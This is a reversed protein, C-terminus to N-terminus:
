QVTREIYNMNLVIRVKEDTCSSGSHKIQSPFTVLTNEKSFVKEGNEFITYGNNTNIYFVATTIKPDYVDIHMGHEIHKHTKTLLNAKIRILSISNLKELIPKLPILEDGYFTHTFQFNNSENENVDVVQSNYFWPFSESFFISKIQSFDENSLFNKVVSIKNM